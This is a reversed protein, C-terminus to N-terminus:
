DTQAVHVDLCATRTTASLDRLEQAYASLMKELTFQQRVRHAAASGLRAREAPSCLSKLHQTLADIDGREYLLGHVGHTVQEAAGGIRSLVVPKGMSMSELAALSFTEVAHSTLVMVDSVAIYPRVDPQFGALTVHSELGRASIEAEIRAQEPGTGVILGKAPLGQQRLRAIAELFDGHAKEPRLAACIGIVYDNALFGLAARYEAKVPEAYRDTYHGADIGNQIVREQEVRLGWTHWHDQQLHSVYVLADCRRFVFTHALVRLKDRWRDIITSHFVAVIRVPRKCLKSALLAYTAAYGNTCVAVDLALADMRRALERIARLEIGSKVDLSFSSELRSTDVEDLLAGQRKIYAFSLRFEQSDLGNLLTVSHREAGGCLLSSVIVLVGPKGQMGTSM